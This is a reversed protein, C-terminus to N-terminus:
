FRSIKSSLTCISLNLVYNVRLNTLVRHVIGSFQVPRSAVIRRLGRTTGACNTNSGGGHQSLMGLLTFGSTRKHGHSEKWWGVM